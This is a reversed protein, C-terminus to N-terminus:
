LTGKHKRFLVILVLIALSALGIAGGVPVLQSDLPLKESETIEQPETGADLKEVETGLSESLDTVKDELIPNEEVYETALQIVNLDQNVDRFALVYGAKPRFEPKSSLNDEECLPHVASWSVGLYTFGEPQDLFFGSGSDGNCPHPGGDEYRMFQVGDFQYYNRGWMGMRELVAERGIDVSIMPFSAMQPYIRRDPSGATEADQASTGGYGGTSVLGGADILQEILDPTALSAISAGSLPQSLVVVAFDNTYSYDGEGFYDYGEQIFITDVSSLTADRGTLAGPQSVKLETPKIPIKLEHQTGDHVCHAATFVIRPAFLFGTCTQVPYSWEPKKFYLAVVRPHDPASEGGKLAFAGLSPLMALSLAVVLALIRQGRRLTPIRARLFGGGQHIM